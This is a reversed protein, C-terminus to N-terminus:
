MLEPFQIFALISLLIFALTTMGTEISLVYGKLPTLQKDIALPPFFRVQFQNSFSLYTAVTQAHM